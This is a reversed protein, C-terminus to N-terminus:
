IVIYAYVDRKKTKRDTPLSPVIILNLYETNLSDNIVSTRVMLLRYKKLM